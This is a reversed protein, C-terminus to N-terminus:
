YRKVSGKWRLTKPRFQQGDLKRDVLSEVARQSCRENMPLFLSEVARRGQDPQSPSLLGNPVSALLVEDTLGTLGLYGTRKKAAVVCYAGGIKGTLGRAPGRCAM